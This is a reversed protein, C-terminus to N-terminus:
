KGLCFEKFVKDIVQDDLEKGLIGYINKLAANLEFLIFEPSQNKKLLKLGKKIQRCFSVLEEKHRLRSIMTSCDSSQQGVLASIKVKFEDLGEGSLASVFYIRSADCSTQELFSRSWDKIEKEGLEDVKNLLIFHEKLQIKKLLSQLKYDKNIETSCDCVLFVCDVDGLLSISKQIGKKEVEDKTERIGASDFFNFDCQGIRVSGEVPDRTTGEQSTVIAKDKGLFYNLLSSKGVNPPGMLLISFGEKIKTGLSFSDLINKSQEYIEQLSSEIEKHEKFIIDEDAFDINAELHSMSTTLKKEIDQLSSSLKGQIHGLAMQAFKESQSEVLDLVAEAQTLDIRGNMFARYTFEGPRALRAGSEILESLIKQSTYASGHCSIEVTCEYTFSRGEQFYTVLVEDIPQKSKKQRVFGYYVKHSEIRDPLFCCINRSIKLAAEGSIRVISIGGLGPATSLACITDTDGSLM